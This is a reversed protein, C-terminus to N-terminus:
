EGGVRTDRPLGGGVDLAGDVRLVAHWAMPELPVQEVSAFLRLSEFPPKQVARVVEAMDEKLTALVIDM